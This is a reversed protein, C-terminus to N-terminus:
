NLTHAGLGDGMARLSKYAAEGMHIFRGKIEVEWDSLEESYLTAFTGKNAKVYEKFSDRFSKDLISGKLTKEERSM